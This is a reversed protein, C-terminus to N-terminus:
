NIKKLAIFYSISILKLFGFGLYKSVFSNYPFRSLALFLLFFFAGLDRVVLLFYIKSVSVWSNEHPTHRTYLIGTSDGRKKKEREALATFNEDLAEGV